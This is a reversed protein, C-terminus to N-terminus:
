EANRAARGGQNRVALVLGDRIPILSTTFDPDSLLMETTQRVGETAEDHDDPDFIRGRWLMNDFIVAGGPRIRSKIVPLAEPYHEKDIDCFILDFTRGNRRLAALSETVEFNVIQGLGARTLYARADKSLQEDWVTHYVRGGGNDAVARAFWITSYGFGSGLEFVQRAGVLRAIQYCFVGAVPGIIPFDEQRAREEMEKLLPNDHQAMHQIHAAVKQHLFDVDPLGKAVFNLNKRRVIFDLLREAYRSLIREFASNRVQISIGNHEADGGYKGQRQDPPRLGQLLVLPQPCSYNPQLSLTSCTPDESRFASCLDNM